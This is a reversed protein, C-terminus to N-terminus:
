PYIASLIVTTWIRQLRAPQLGPLPINKKQPDELQGKKRAGHFAHLLVGAALGSAIPRVQLGAWEDM